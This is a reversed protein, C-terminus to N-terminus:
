SDFIPGFAPVGRSECEFVLKRTVMPNSIVCVAEARFEKFLRMMLPLMDVRGKRSQLIEPNPDLHHVLDLIRQGYTKLPDKTQWIVRMAPRIPDELFSLCPGIGSGTTVLIISNFVQMAKGFGYIPIGRKWLHTPPNEITDSTWDGAKSIICSFGDAKSISGNTGPKSPIDPFTAFSHWDRLPHKSLQLGQGFNITTHHFHLRIAHSSISEADVKVRRLLAWPHIIALTAIILMWFTPFRVLFQSLSQGNEHAASTSALSLLPWFLAVVAWGCFRHTLEFYDHLMFRIKPYAAVIIALLLALIIYSIVLIAPTAFSTLSIGSKERVYQQTLLAIFGIYWFVSAIGAGSHLGGLCYIKAFRTRLWMPASRPIAGFVVFLFNVVLPQRALGLALLNAAAADVLDVPTRDKVLIWIFATVNGLFVLSFLRRYVSAMVYRSWAFPKVEPYGEPIPSAELNKRDQRLEFEHYLIPTTATEINLDSVSGSASDNQLTTVCSNLSAPNRASYQGEDNPEQELMGLMGTTSEFVAMDLERPAVM